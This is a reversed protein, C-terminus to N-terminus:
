ASKGGLVAQRKEPLQSTCAAVGPLVAHLAHLHSSAMELRPALTCLCTILTSSCVMKVRMSGWLFSVDM